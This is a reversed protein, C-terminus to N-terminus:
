GAKYLAGGIVNRKAGTVSSLCNARNNIYLTGLFAFILAEKYNIVTSEPIHIKIKCHAQIRQILFKNFAGGGTILMFGQHENVKLAIQMAIHECFTCLKDELSLSYKEITPIMVQEVWERGLSKPGQQHYFELNNLANLLEPNVNGKAARQGDEDYDVGINRTYHNLVYNAPCIDFAIREGASEYSINAFGGINLCYSYDSFLLRDGIPVLPAGQGGAAVDTTRFDCVTDVGTEVAIHAGSGIQVTFGKEPQHFITHGHSAIINPQVHYKNMFAKVVEGTYKGYSSHFAVFELANMNQATAIQQKITKPYAHTETALIAYDWKNNDYTFRCFCIDLGDLSTGSMLGIATFATPQQLM